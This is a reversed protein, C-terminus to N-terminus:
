STVEKIFDLGEESIVKINSSIKEIDKRAYNDITLNEENFISDPILIKEYIETKEKSLNSIIDKGGLLGTIKINGGFFKNEVVLIKIYSVIKEGISSLKKLIINLTHNIIVEGYESTIVLIYKKGEYSKDPNYNYKIYDEVQKLFGASKGIGNEIQYFDGYYGYEPFSVVALIYFEDSLYINHTKKLSRYDKKFSNINKIIRLASKRTYPRLNNNNNFRTIGVPVIGISLINKFDNILTFLTDKLDEGDNIGPCLVIQINTKIGNRDLIGLNELGSMNRRNGFIVARIDENLSHVSIYLPELRYKIIKNLDEKTINTLTIFNGYTYSLIYDDDKIYLSSRLNKPLQKIFCFICDNKCTKIKKPLKYNKL